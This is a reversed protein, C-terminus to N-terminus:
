EENNINNLEERKYCRTSDYKRTKM